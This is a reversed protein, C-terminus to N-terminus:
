QAPEATPGRQTTALVWVGLALMVFCGWQAPTLHYYRADQFRIPLDDNRLFDLGFRIPAYMVALWGVFFGPKRQQRGLWLWAAAFVLFILAEYLGLEHRVGAVDFGEVRYGKPFEMGLPFTTLSGIHDHVSACGMRGFIWGFPFGYAVLDAHLWFPRPRIYKFFVVAGLVAGLFGGFSSFGEWLRLLSWIGDTALREPHYALVTVVHGMVFGSGVIALVGDVADRV